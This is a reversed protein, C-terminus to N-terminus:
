YPTAAIRDIEMANATGHPAGGIWVPWWANAMVYMPNTPLNKKHSWVQMSVGDVFFEVRGARWDIRYTHFGASPDFALTKTVGYKQRDAVWVTFMVRRTGDNFIEIDLEDNRPGHQYLFFASITGPAYPTRIRAEYSGYGYREISRIEGGDLTGAPHVLQVLGAGAVVNERRFWGRGLAHEEKSWRAGDFLDFGDDFASAATANGIAVEADVATLPATSTGDSCSALAVLMALAPTISRRHRAM